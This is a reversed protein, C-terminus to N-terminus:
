ESKTKGPFKASSVLNDAATGVFPCDTEGEVVFGVVLAGTDELVVGRDGVLVNYLERKVYRLSDLTDVLRCFLGAIQM